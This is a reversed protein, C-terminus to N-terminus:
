RGEGDLFQRCGYLEVDICRMDYISTESSKDDQHTREERMGNGSGRIGPM